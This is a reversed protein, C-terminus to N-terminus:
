KVYLGIVNSAPPIVEPIVQFQLGVGIRSVGNATSQANSLVSAPVQMPIQLIGSVFGPMSYLSLPPIAMFSFTQWTSYLAAAPSLQTFSAISGPALSPSTAGIGTVFVFVTSGIAAPNAASNLTGDQNEVLGDAFGISPSSVQANFIGTTLLGPVSGSVPMWVPSSVSGNYSIEMSTFAPATITGPASTNPTDPVAVIVRGPAVQLVPAPVGDFLVQMGGLTLPLDKSANLGLDITAPQFGSGTISYLGRVTVTTADGSFANSIQDLSFATNRAPLSLVAALGAPLRPSVGAYISGDSALAIGPVGCGDLYSAFQLTSGDSSLRAIASSTAGCTPGALVPSHLALGGATELALVVAGSPDVAMAGTALGCSSGVAAAYIPQFASASLKVLFAAGPLPGVGYSQCHTAVPPSSYAGPTAFVPPDPTSGFVLLNGDADMALASPAGGYAVGSLDASLIVSSASPDLKVVFPAIGASQQVSGPPIGVGAISVQHNSDVLIATPSINAPGLYTSYGLGADSGLKLLFGTYEGPVISTSLVGPTIPFGASNTRGAIYVSASSDVAMASVINAGEGGILASWAIAGDPSFKTVFGYQQGKVGLLPVTMPFDQSTTNGTVYANGQADVALAIPVDNDSGGLYTAWQVTGNSSVKALFADTSTGAPRTVYATCGPGTSVSTIGSLQPTMWTIGYDPSFDIHFTPGTASGIAFMGGTASCKHSVLAFPDHTEPFFTTFPGPGTQRTWSNAGDSSKYFGDPNASVLVNPQDPDVQLGLMASFSTPPSTKPTWTAGFDTSLALHGLTGTGSDVYIWGAHSPDFAIAVPAGPGPANLPQLTLGWDRSISGGAILAGSGTPDALLPRGCYQCLTGGNTWTQGGDISRIVAGTKALVAALRLHNGPDITLASGGPTQYVTAWTQGSDTSKFIGAGGASFIVQPLVPDPVVVTVDSPPLGLHTWTAGLDTSRLIRAEGITPQAANVVPFNMSSTSGAVYLDGGPGTAVAQITNQGSGSFSAISLGKLVGGADHPGAPPAASLLFCQSVAIALLLRM